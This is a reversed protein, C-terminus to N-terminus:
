LSKMHLKMHVSFHIDRIYGVTTLIDNVHLWYHSVRLCARLGKVGERVGAYWTEDKELGFLGIEGRVAGDGNPSLEGTGIVVPWECRLNGSRTTKTGFALAGELTEAGGFANRIRATISASGDNNSGVDTSSKLFFRGRERVRFHLAYDHPAAYPSPSPEITPVVSAFIGTSNLAANIHRSTHLANLLTEHPGLTSTM